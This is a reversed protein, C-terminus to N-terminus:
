LLTLIANCGMRKKCEVSKNSNSLWFFVLFYLILLWSLGAYMSNKHKGRWQQCAGGRYEYCLYCCRILFAVMYRLM